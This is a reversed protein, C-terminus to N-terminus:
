SYKKRKEFARGHSPAIGADAARGAGIVSCAMPTRAIRAPIGTVNYILKDLGYIQCAGGTLVIGNEAIDSVLEPPTREIVKCVSEIIATVPEELAEVMDYSTMSVVDPTGSNLNRGKVTIVRDDERRWVAGAKIKAEEAGLTGVVVGHKKRIYRVIAKDMAHGAVRVSDYVVVGGLAIVATDATGGGIDIVMNGVPLTIDLGAGIASALAKDILFVERAGAEIAADRVAHEEVDTIISPVAVTITPKTLYGGVSKRIMKQMMLTAHRYRSIVGDELPFVVELGDPARGIIDQAERGCKVIRNSLKDVVVVSPESLVVGKGPIYIRVNSTGLDFAIDKGM